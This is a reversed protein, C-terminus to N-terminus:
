ENKNKGIIQEITYQPKNNISLFIRGIYEGILGLSMLIMGGFFILLIIITIWGEIRQNSSFYEALYIVGLIFSLAASCFGILSVLQLPYISYNTAHKIFVLVSRIFNYNGKGKYRTHHDVEVQVVNATITLLTADIYPFPGTYKIVEAAISKTIIKYPSLYIAAPKKLLKESLKGNIWSGFNKRISQNKKKFSAYCIDYGEKCKDYLTIIDSPSHQLDDDMIVIYAGKAARIGAIIANDQGFNKRFNIGTACKNVSCIHSIKDWSNDTSKDNIFIIEYKDFVTLAKELEDNLQLLCDESNYVPIVISIKTLEM